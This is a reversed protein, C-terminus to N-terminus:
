KTLNILNNKEEGEGIILLKFNEINIKKILKILFKHNKVSSLRSVYIAVIDKKSFGLSEKLVYDKEKYYFNISNRFRSHIIYEGSSIKDGFSMLLNKDRIESNM